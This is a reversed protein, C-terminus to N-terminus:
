KPRVWQKVAEVYAVFNAVPTDKDVGHNLNVIHRQGGSQNLCQWVAQRVQEPTGCRLIEADVNGQFTLHPYHQLAWALNHKVGLSVVKAGSECMSELYPCEKVFLIGPAQALAAFIQQHYHQAWAQYLEPALMGAWSDFLQFIDAGAAILTSLFHITAWALRQLLEQWVAPQSAAFALTGETNKGTGICYTAVTYPAGAFVIVPLRGAIQARVRELLDLVHRYANPAPQPNLQQVDALSAIPRAPLPGLGSPLTFPLGMAIPLTTIDYFLIVADVGFRVPALTAQVASDVDESFDFFSRHSRLRRFEPDWRGAQRMAWVPPREVTEGRVARLLLHDTAVKQKLM